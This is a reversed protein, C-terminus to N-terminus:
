VGATDTKREVANGYVICALLLAAGWWGTGSLQEGLIFYSAAATFVPETCHTLSDLSSPIHALATNQLLYALCSCLGALYVIV